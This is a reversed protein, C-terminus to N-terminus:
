RHSLKFVKQRLATLQAIGDDMTQRGVESGFQEREKRLLTLRTILSEHLDDLEQVTFACVLVAPTPTTVIQGRLEEATGKAFDSWVEGRKRETYLILDGEECSCMKGGFYSSDESIRFLEGPFGRLGFTDPFTAKVRQFVEKQKQDYMM